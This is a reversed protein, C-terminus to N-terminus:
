DKGDNNTRSGFKPHLHRWIKGTRINSITTAVVGFRKGIEKHIVGQDLLEHIKLVDSATLKATPVQEGRLQRNRVVRDRTNDYATGAKIHDPRVCQPTDCTHCGYPKPYDGYEFLFSVRHARERRGQFQFMGYGNANRSGMWLWCEGSKDVQSWFRDHDSIRIPEPRGNARWYTYHRHCWGRAEQPKDCGEVTCPQKPKVHKGRRAKASEILSQMMLHRKTRWQRKANKVSACSRCHNARWDKPTGCECVSRCIQCVDLKYDNRLNKQCQTCKKM